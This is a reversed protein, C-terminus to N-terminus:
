AAPGTESLKLLALIATMALMSLAPLSKPFPDQIKLHMALAGLMLVALVGAAYLVLTPIWLGALLAAAAGLKLAGVGFFVADPLGYAAFEQHLSSASGGRFATPKGRRLLWVNLLGLALVLQLLSALNIPPM